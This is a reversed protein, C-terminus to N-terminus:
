ALDPRACHALRKVSAKSEAVNVVEPSKVIAHLMFLGELAARCLIRAPVEAGKVTLVIAAQLNTLTRMYLAAAVVEPLHDRRINVTYQLKVAYTNVSRVLALWPAYREEIVQEVGRVEDSM